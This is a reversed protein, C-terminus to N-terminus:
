IKLRFLGSLFNFICFSLGIWENKLHWLKKGMNIQSMPGNTPAIQPGFLTMGEHRNEKIMIIKKTFIVGVWFAM